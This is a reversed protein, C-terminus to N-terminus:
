SRSSSRWFSSPSVPMALFGNTSVWTHRWAASTARKLVELKKDTRHYVYSGPEIGDVANVILYLDNLQSGVPDLFDAPIGRTARDLMTSFQELTLPSQEFRRTSGRRLIVSEIGEKSIENDPLPGLSIVEDRSSPKQVIPMGGRWAAVEEVTRLSSAQHMLGMAPYHVESESLPVTEFNLQSIEEPLRPLIPFAEWRIMSFAVERETDLDLLQNVPMDWFRM